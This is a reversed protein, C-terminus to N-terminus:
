KISKSNKSRALQRVWKIIPKRYRVCVYLLVLVALVVVGIKAYREFLHFMAEWQPGFLKGIWIFLLVWFLAGTYCFFAFKRFPLRVIGSFYGTFHRVGPIFYGIFILAYGYKDFWFKTKDIKEPSLFVWKGYKKVFPMGVFYGIFYTITMGITTGLFALLVLWEWQFIGEYSLYGAFAMTTEGPFPLAIFELLLGFFLVYYGHQHFLDQIVQM